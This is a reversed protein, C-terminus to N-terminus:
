NKFNYTCFAHRQTPTQLHAFVPLPQRSSSSYATTLQRVHTSAGLSRAEALATNARLASGDRWGWCQFYDWSSTLTSSKLLGYYRPFVTQLFTNIRFCHTKTSDSTTNKNTQKTKSATSKTICFNYFCVNPKTYAKNESQHILEIFSMYDLSLLCVSALLIAIFARVGWLVGM